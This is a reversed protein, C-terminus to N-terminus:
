QRDTGKSKAEEEKSKRGRLNGFPSSEKAEMNAALTALRAKRLKESPAKKPKPGDPGAPRGRKGTKENAMGDKRKYAKQPAM